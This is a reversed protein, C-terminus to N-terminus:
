QHSLRFCPPAAGRVAQESKCKQDPPSCLLCSPPCSPAPYRHVLRDLISFISFAFCQLCELFMPSTHLPLILLLTVILRSGFAIECPLRTGQDPSTGLSPHRSCPPADGMDATCTRGSMQALAMRILPYKLSVTTEIYVIRWSRWFLLNFADACQGVYQLVNAIVLTKVAMLVVPMMGRLVKVAMLLKEMMLSMVAFLMMVMLLKGRILMNVM